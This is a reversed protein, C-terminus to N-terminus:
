ELKNCGERLFFLANMGIAAGIFFAVPLFLLGGGALYTGVACLAAFITGGIIDFWAFETIPQHRSPTTVHLEKM